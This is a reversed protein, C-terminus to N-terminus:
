ELVLVETGREAELLSLPMGVETNLNERNAHTRRQPRLLATLIGKTSNKGNSGTVGVAPCGLERRWARALSVLAALPDPAAIVVPDPEGAPPTAGPRTAAGPRTPAGPETAEEAHAPGVLVGWAGQALAAPAFAGGDAREGPLGVFLDGPGAARSDVVARRPGHADASGAVLRGGAAEAVWKAPLDIM